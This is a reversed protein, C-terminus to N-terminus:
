NVCKLRSENYYGMKFYLIFIVFIDYCNILLRLVGILIIKKDWEDKMVNM